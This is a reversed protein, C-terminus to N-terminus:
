MTLLQTCGVKDRVQLAAVEEKAASGEARSEELQERVASLEAAHAQAALQREATAAELARRLQVAEAHAAAAEAQSQGLKGTLEWVQLGAVTGTTLPM